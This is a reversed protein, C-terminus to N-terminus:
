GHHPSGESEDRQGDDYVGAEGVATGYYPRQEDASCGRKYKRRWRVVKLRRDHTQERHCTQKTTGNPLCAM